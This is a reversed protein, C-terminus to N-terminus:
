NEDRDGCDVNVVKLGSLWLRALLSDAADLFEPTMDADTEESLAEAFRLRITDDVM